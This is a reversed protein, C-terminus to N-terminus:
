PWKIGRHEEALMTRYSVVNRGGWRKVGIYKYAVTM